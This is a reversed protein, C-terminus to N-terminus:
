QGKYCVRIPETSFKLRQVREHANLLRSHTEQRHVCLSSTGRDSTLLETQKREHRIEKVHAENEAISVEREKRGKKM